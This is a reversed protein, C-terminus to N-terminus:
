LNLNDHLAYEHGKQIAKQVGDDLWMGKMADKVESSSFADESDVDPETTELLEAYERNGDDAFDVEETQMIELLVRFAIIMNSYIVARTQQREEDPFGNQHIIRM